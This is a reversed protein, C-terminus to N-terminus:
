TKLGHFIPHQIWKNLCGSPPDRITTTDDFNQHHIIFPLQLSAPAVVSTPKLIWLYHTAPQKNTETVIPQFLIGLAM